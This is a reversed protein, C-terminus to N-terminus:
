LARLTVLLGLKGELVEVGKAVRDATVFRPYRDWSGVRSTRTKATKIDGIVHYKELAKVDRSVTSFLGYLYERSMSYRSSMDDIFKKLRYSKSYYGNLIPSYISNLNFRRREVIEPLPPTSAREEPFTVRVTRAYSANNQYSSNSEAINEKEPTVDDRKLCGVIYISLSLTILLKLIKM